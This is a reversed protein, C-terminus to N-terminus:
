ILATSIMSEDVTYSFRVKNTFNYSADLDSEQTHLFKSSVPWGHMDAITEINLLFRGANKSLLVLGLASGHM